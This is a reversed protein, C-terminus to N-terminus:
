ESHIVIEPFYIGPDTELNCVVLRALSVPDIMKEPPMHSPVHNFFPTNVSGPKYLWVRAGMPEIEKQLSQAFMELGAKSAGYLSNKPWVQETSASGLYVLEFRDTVRFEWALKYFSFASNLNIDILSQWEALDIASARKMLGYGAAHVAVSFGNEVQSLWKRVTAFGDADTISSVCVSRGSAIGIEKQIHGLKEASRGIIYCNYNQDALERCVASGIGGTAGFILANRNKM